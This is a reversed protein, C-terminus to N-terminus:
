LHVVLHRAKIWCINKKYCVFPIGNWLSDCIIIATIFIFFHVSPCPKFRINPLVPSWYFLFINEFQIKFLYTYLYNYIIIILPELVRVTVQTDSVTCKSRTLLVINAYWCGLLLIFFFLYHCQLVSNYDWLVIDILTSNISQTSPLAYKTYYSM